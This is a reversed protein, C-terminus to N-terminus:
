DAHDAEKDTINSREDRWQEFRYAACLAWYIPLPLLLIIPLIWSYDTTM